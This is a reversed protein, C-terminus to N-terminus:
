KEPQLIDLGVYYTGGHYKDDFKVSATQGSVFVISGHKDKHVGATVVVRDHTKYTTM